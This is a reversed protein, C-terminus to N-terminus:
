WLGFGSSSATLPIAWIRLAAWKPISARNRNFQNFYKTLSHGVPQRPINEPYCRALYQISLHFRRRFAPVYNLQNSRRGTVDSTAPELGTTGAMKEIIELGETPIIKAENEGTSCYTRCNEM